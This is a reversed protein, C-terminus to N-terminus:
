TPTKGRLPLQLYTPQMLAVFSKGRLPMSQEQEPIQIKVVFIDDTLSEANWDCLRNTLIAVHHCFSQLLAGLWMFILTGYTRWKVSVMRERGGGFPSILNQAQVQIKM